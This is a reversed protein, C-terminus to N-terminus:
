QFDGEDEEILEGEDSEYTKRPPSRDPYTYVVTRQRTTSHKIWQVMYKRFKDKSYKIKPFNARVNNYILNNLSKFSNFADLKATGGWTYKDMVKNNFLYKMRERVAANPDTGGLTDM